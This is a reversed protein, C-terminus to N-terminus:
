LEHAIVNPEFVGTDVVIYPKEGMRGQGYHRDRTVGLLYDPRIVSLTPLPPQVDGIPIRRVGVIRDALVGFRMEGDDLVIAKDLDSLGKRALGFFKRVDLVSLIEGRLHILGLVFDPTGPLVTLERLPVVERVWASEIAHCEDALMFELVEISAGGVAPAPAALARARAELVARRVASPPVAREDLARAADALRAHLRTWDIGADTM